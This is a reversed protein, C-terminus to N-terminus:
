VVASRDMDSYPYVGAKKLKAILKEGGNKRAFDMESRHIEMVLLLGFESHDEDSGYADFILCKGGIREFDEPFECTEHPNLTAQASYSAISNLIANISGHVQGFATSENQADDLSIPLRTFMVLEYFDFVDNSSGEGPIESLEKTAVATGEIGNPFYYLDLGGGIAYPIIGVMLASKQDYWEQAAIEDQDEQEDQEDNMAAVKEAEIVFPNRVNHVIM